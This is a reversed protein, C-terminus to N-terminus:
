KEKRALLSFLMGMCTPGLTLNGVHDGSGPFMQVQLGIWFLAACHPIPHTVKDGVKHGMVWCNYHECWHLTDSIAPLALQAARFNLNIETAHIHAPLHQMVLVGRCVGQLPCPHVSHACVNSSICDTM